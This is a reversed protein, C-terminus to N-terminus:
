AAWSFSASFGSTGDGSCEVELRSIRSRVGAADEGLELQFAM